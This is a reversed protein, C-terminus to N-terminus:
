CDCSHNNKNITHIGNGKKIAISWDLDSSLTLTDITVSLSSVSASQQRSSNSRFSASRFYPTLVPVTNDSDLLILTRTLLCVSCLDQQSAPLPCGADQVLRLPPPAVTQRAEAGLKRGKTVRRRVVCLEPIRRVRGFVILNLLM